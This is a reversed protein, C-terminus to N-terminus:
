IWFNIKKRSYRYILDSMIFGVVLFLILQLYIFPNVDIGLLPDRISEIMCTFPNLYVLNEYKGLQDKDWLIPTLLISASMIATILMGLDRFRACSISIIFTIWYGNLFVLILGPIFLLNKLTIEVDALFIIIIYMPIFQIFELFKTLLYISLVNNLKIGLSLLLGKYQLFLIDTAQATFSLILYFSTFGLFVKAFYDLYPVNMVISWIVSIISVTILYTLVIWFNGILTRRYKVTTELKAINLALSHNKITNLTFSYFNKEM